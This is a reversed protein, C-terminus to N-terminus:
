KEDKGPDGSPVPSYTHDEAFLAESSPHLYSSDEGPCGCLDGGGIGAGCSGRSHIRLDHGCANCLFKSDRKMRSITVGQAGPAAIVDNLHTSCVAQGNLVTTAPHPVDGRVLCLACNFM